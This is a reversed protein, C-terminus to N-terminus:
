TMLAKSGEPLLEFLRSDLIAKELKQIPNLLQSKEKRCKDLEQELFKVMDDDSMLCELKVMTDLYDRVGETPMRIM